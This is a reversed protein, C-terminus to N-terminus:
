PHFQYKIMSLRLRLLPGSSSPTMRGWRRVGKDDDERRMRGCGLPSRSM